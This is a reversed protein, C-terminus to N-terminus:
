SDVIENFKVGFDIDGFKKIYSSLEGNTIMKNIEKMGEILDQKNVENKSKTKVSKSAYYNDIVLVFQGEPRTSHSEESQYYITYKKNKSSFLEVKVYYATKGYVKVIIPEKTSGALKAIGALQQIAKIKANSEANGIDTFSVDPKHVYRGESIFEKFTMLEM